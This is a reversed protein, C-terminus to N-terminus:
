RATAPSSRLAKSDKLRFWPERARLGRELAKRSKANNNDIIANCPTLIFAIVMNEELLV